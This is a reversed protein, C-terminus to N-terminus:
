KGKGGRQYMGIFNREALMKLYTTVSIEVERRGLKYKKCMAKVISEVTNQGDCLEWVFTGVEDLEVARAEPLRFLFSFFKGTRDKRHPVRLSAEGEDNREWEIAANRVPRLHLVVQKDVPPTLRLFPLYRGATVKLRESLPVRM